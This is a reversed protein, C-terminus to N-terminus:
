QTRSTNHWIRAKWDATAIEARIAAVLRETGAGLHV